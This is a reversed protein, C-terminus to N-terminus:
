ADDLAAFAAAAETVEGASKAQLARVLDALALARDARTQVARWDAEDILAFTRGGRITLIQVAGDGLGALVASTDRKFRTLTIPAPDITVSPERM